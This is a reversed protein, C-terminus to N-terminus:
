RKGSSRAKPEFRVSRRRDVPASNAHVQGAASTFGELLATQCAQNTAAAFRVSM